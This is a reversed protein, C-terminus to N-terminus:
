VRRRLRDASAELLQSLAAAPGRRAGQVVFEVDGLEPLGPGHLTALGQPVLSAAHPAVGLGALAAADVGTQSGSTCALRWARGAREMVELVRLRTISPPALLILPLPEAPDFSTGPRGIWVLPERWVLRGRPDGEPRKAFVLDLAGEALRNYLEGSVGVTLELEVGPNAQTFDRLIDPLGQLLVDESAGFRLRGRLKAASFHRRARAEIDLVSRAFGLMAEGDATLAVSHTDRIFLRRGCAAELRRIHGSVTSQQLSLHRAAASFGGRDAVSQFSRLLVPDLM